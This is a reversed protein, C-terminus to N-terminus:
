RWLVWTTREHEIVETKFLGIMSEMLANDLVDGISGILGTIGADRLEEPFALSTYPSDAGSHHLLERTTFEMNARRRTLLSQELASLVLTTTKSTM